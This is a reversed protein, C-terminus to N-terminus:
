CAHLPLQMWRLEEMMSPGPLWLVRQRGSAAHRDSPVSLSTSSTSHHHDGPSLSDTILTQRWAGALKNLHLKTLQGGFSVDKMMAGPPPPM